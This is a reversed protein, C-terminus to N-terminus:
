DAIARGDQGILVFAATTAEMTRPLDPDVSEVPGTWSLHYDLRAGDPRRATTWVHLSRFPQGDVVLDRVEYTLTPRNPRSEGLEPPTLEHGGALAGEAARTYLDMLVVSPDESGDEPARAMIAMQLYPSLEAALIVRPADPVSERLSWGRGPLVAVFGLAGCGVATGHTRYPEAVCRPAAPRPEAEPQADAVRPPPESAPHAHGSPAGCAVLVFLCPALRRM